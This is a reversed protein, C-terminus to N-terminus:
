VECSKLCDLPGKPRKQFQRTVIEQQAIGISSSLHANERLADYLLKIEPAGSVTLVAPHNEERYQVRTAGAVLPEQTM